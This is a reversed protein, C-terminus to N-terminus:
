HEFLRYNDSDAIQKKLFGTRSLKEKTSDGITIIKKYDTAKEPEAILSNPTYDNLMNEFVKNQESAVSYVKANPRNLFHPSKFYKNLAYVNEFADTFDTALLIKEDVTTNKKLQEYFIGLRQNEQIFKYQIQCFKFVHYSFTLVVSIVVIKKVNEVEIKQYLGYLILVQPVLLPLLYRGVNIGSKSYLVLSPCIGFLFLFLYKKSENVFEWVHNKHVYLLYLVVFFLPFGYGRILYQVIVKVINNIGFTSGDIGAYGDFTTGVLYLLCGIEVVFLALITYAVKKNQWNLVAFILLALVFSEKCLSMLVLAVWFVFQFAPKKDNFAKQNAYLAIAMLLMGINETSDYVWWIVGQMGVFVLVTFGYCLRESFRLTQFYLHLFFCALGGLVLHYCGIFKINLGFGATYVWQHVSMLPRFRSSHFINDSVYKWADGTRIHGYMTIITHDDVLTFVRNANVRLLFDILFWLLIYALLLYIKKQM